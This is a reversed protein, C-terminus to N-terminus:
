LLFPFLFFSLIAGPQRTDSFLLLLLLLGIARPSTSCSKSLSSPPTADYTVKKREKSSSFFFYHLLLGIKLHKPSLLPLSRTLSRSVIVLLCLPVQPFLRRGLVEAPPPPPIICSCVILSPSSSLGVKSQLVIALTIRSTMSSQSLYSAARTSADDVKSTALSYVDGGGGGYLLLLFSPVKNILRRRKPSKVFSSPFSPPSSSCTLANSLISSSSSSSSSSPFRYVVRVCVCFITLSMVASLLSKQECRLFRRRRRRRTISILRMWTATIPRLHITSYLFFFFLLFLLIFRRNSKQSGRGNARWAWAAHCVIANATIPCYDRTCM